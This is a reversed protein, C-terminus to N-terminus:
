SLPPQSAALAEWVRAASLPMDLDTVGLPRLADLAANVVVAMAPTIGSEGGGKIRLPNAPTPDEAFVTNFAPLGAARILAYDLFSASLVQANAPDFRVSESLAQGLGQVIGGHVQGHLILPNIPQGVDDVCTYRTIELAGTEPDIELECVAAGTPHAPLRGTFAAEATLTTRRAIEFLGVTRDPDFEDLQDRVSACAEVLLTGVLRMSRDSHTGGGGTVRETDGTVLDVQDPRIELLDAVVQAFATAHGQGTSQTGTILEVRGTPLVTLRVREHPAGVPAEVYTAVSIGALRGRQKATARRQPFGSWDALDLVQSLNSAFAGSDFTLGLATQYPLQDPRVLNRRRLEARDLTLRDAAIDLLRELVYMAEPRGAGRYPGTPVTNTLAARVGVSARPIDYAGTMVRAANSLPVYSGSYAGVNFLFDVSLACIRGDHTLGLRAKVHADRGQFDSLFAETRDSTWRVPRGVRKAAWVVIVQEPYLSTRPGFGGGVDPSIARVKELPVNLAAALSARQRVVGQSGAIMLYTQTSPDFTGIASRPEIQANAIRQIRFDHEVTVAAGALAQTTADPDGFSAAVALNDPAAETLRPAHDALAAHADSVAALLAYEVTVQDAADRAAAPSEAIVVALAEGPYRVREHALPLQPEDLPPRTDTPGFAPRTYDITDAPVPAHRLGVCGDALYDAATLVAVVGPAAQAATLDIALVRAHAHPSRVFAAFTQDPLTWDDTYRGQGRLLREDELRPLPRGVYREVM